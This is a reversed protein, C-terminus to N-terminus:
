HLFFARLWLAAPMFRIRRRSGSGAVLVQVERQDYQRAQRGIGTDGPKNIASLAYQQRM